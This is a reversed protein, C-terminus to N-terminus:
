LRAEFRCFSSFFFMTPGIVPRKVSFPLLFPLSLSVQACAEFTVFCFSFLTVQAQDSAYCVANCVYSPPPPKHVRGDSDGGGGGFGGRGGGGYGGRGGGFQNHGGRGADM